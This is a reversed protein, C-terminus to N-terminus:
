HAQNRRPAGRFRSLLSGGASVREQLQLLAAAGAKAAAPKPAEQVAKPKAERGLCENHCPESCGEFCAFTHHTKRCEDFCKKTCTVASSSAAAAAGTSRRACSAGEFGQWVCCFCRRQADNHSNPTTTRTRRKGQCVTPGCLCLQM